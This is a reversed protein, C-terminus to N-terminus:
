SHIRNRQDFNIMPYRLYEKQSTDTSVHNQHALNKKTLDKTLLFKERKLFTEYYGQSEDFLASLKDFTLNLTDIEGLSM